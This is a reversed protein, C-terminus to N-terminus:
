CISTRGLGFDDFDERIIAAATSNWLKYKYKIIRDIMTDWIILDAPTCPTVAFVYALSPIIATRVIDLTQQPSAYSSDLNDLENRLYISLLVQRVIPFMGFGLAQVASNPTCHSCQLM